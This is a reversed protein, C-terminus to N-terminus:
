STWPDKGTQEQYRSYHTPSSCHQQKAEDEDAFILQCLKCFYGVVPRVFETGVPKAPKEPESQRETEAAADDDQEAQPKPGDGTGVPPDPSESDKVKSESTESELCVETTKEEKDRPEDAESPKEELQDDEPKQKIELDKRDKASETKMTEQSVSGYEPTEERKQTENEPSTKKEPTNRGADDKESTNKLNKEEAKKSLSENEPTKISASDKDATKRSTSDEEPTKRSTSDNESTKRSTSDNELTMRCTSDEPTKKSTSEEPTKESTSEKEPTKRSRSDEDPTKKSTSEEPTQKSMSEKEPTKRSTSNEEPTRRSMSEKKPSTSDEEPTKKSTSEKEPTTKSASEKEPSKKLSEKGKLKKDAEDRDSTGSKSRRRSGRDLPVPNGHSLRDYKYSLSVIPQFNNFIIPPKLALERAAKSAESSSSMEIFGEQQGHILIYRVAMGFDRVLSLFESNSFQPPLNTFYLVRSSQVPTEDHKEMELGGTRRGQDSKDEDLEDLTICNELDVPFDPEENEQTEATEESEEKKMGCGDEEEVQDEIEEDEEEEEEEEGQELSQPSDNEEAAEEQEEEEEEEELDEGDEAIVEMGEIDSEEASVEAEEETQETDTAEPKSDSLSAPEDESRSESEVMKEVTPGTSSKDRSKSESGPETRKEKSTKERSRSRSKKERDSKERSKSRTERSSKTRSKDRSRSRSKTRTRRSRSSKDRSRSRNKRSSTSSSKDRSRSRSKRHRGSREKSRERSRSRTKRDRSSERRTRKTESKEDKERSSSRARKVSPPEEEYRKASPVNMLSKFEGSFSVKISNSSIRLTNTSYYDVLKQADLVNKMEVFAMSPLFLTYLPLGFRKVISLLDSRGDEGAPAPSFSVVQSSRLFSFTNSISFEIKEGNVTPPYNVHFKVLDKAQDLTGLELFALSPFMLIKLIKGFPETLKRLYTEDVSQAPFKVCVVKGQDATKQLKQNTQSKQSQDSTQRPPSPKKDDRRKSQDDERTVTEMRCDWDPFQQLLSLQGDAHLTGNIHQIWVRESLVTIQCLSCSYPYAPPTTGHFDLAQKMFPMSVLPRVSRSSSSGSERRGEQPKAKPPPAARSDAPRAESYRSPRARTGQEAPSFSPRDKSPGPGTKGYDSPGPRHHYDVSFGSSSSSSSPADARRTRSTGWHDQNSPLSTSSILHLPYQVPQSHPQDWDLTSPPRHASGALYSSSSSSSPASSPFLNVSGRKGKIQKLIHPLSEVTLVDEPLKALLALDEPELGCSSLISLVGDQSAAPQLAARSSSSSSSPYSFSEQPRYFDSSPHRRDASSYPGPDPRLDTDSRRYPYNHSM